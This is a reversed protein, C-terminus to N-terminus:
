TQHIDQSETLASDGSTISSAWKGGRITISEETIGTPALTEKVGDGAITGNYGLAIKSGDFLYIRYGTTDPMIGSGDFLGVGAGSGTVGFRASDVLLAFTDDNKLRTFTIDWSQRIPNDMDRTNGYITKPDDKWGFNPQISTINKIESTTADANNYATVMGLVGIGKTAGNPGIGTTVSSATPLDGSCNVSGGANETTIFLKYQPGRKYSM